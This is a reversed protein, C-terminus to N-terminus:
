IVIIRQVNREKGSEDRHTVQWGITYALVTGEVTEGTQSLGRRVTRYYIIRFDRYPELDPRHQFFSTGNLEFHGDRLDVAVARDEGILAFKVLPTQADRQLVDFFRSRTADIESLDSESQDIVSGDVFFARYFLTNQIDM